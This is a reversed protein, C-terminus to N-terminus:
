LSEELDYLEHIAAPEVRRLWPQAREFVAIIEAKQSEYLEQTPSRVLIATAFILFTYSAVVRYECTVGHADVIAAQRIRLPWGSQTSHDISRADMLSEGPRLGRELLDEPLEARVVMPGVEVTLGEAGVPCYQVRGPVERQEWSDPIPLMLRMVAPYDIRAGCPLPRQVRDSGRLASLSNSTM